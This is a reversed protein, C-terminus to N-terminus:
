RMEQVETQNKKMSFNFLNGKEKYAIKHASKIIFYAGIGIIILVTGSLIMNTGAGGGIRRGIAPVIYSCLFVGSAEIGSMLSMATTTAKGHTTRGVYVTLGSVIILNFFMNIIGGVYCGAVSHTLPPVIMFLGCFIFALTISYRKTIKIWIDSLFGAVTGAVSCLSGIVGALATTGIQAENVIYDSYNLYWANWFVAGVLYILLLGIAIVPLKENEEEAQRIHIKSEEKTKGKIEAKDVDPYFLITLLLVPILLLVTKYGDQFRGTNAFIGGLLTFVAMGLMKFANYWGLVRDLIDPPSILTLVTPNAAPIIGGPIGLLASCILVGILPMDVLLILLGSIIAVVISLIVITKKNFVQLMISSAFAAIMMVVMPLTSILVATQEQGPFAQYILALVVVAICYIWSSFSTVLITIIQLKLKM